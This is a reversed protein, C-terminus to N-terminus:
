GIGCARLSRANAVQAYWPRASRDRPIRLIANSADGALPTAGDFGSAFRRLTVSGGPARLSMGGPPIRLSVAPRSPTTRRIACAPARRVGAPAATLRLGYGRVFVNDALRRHGEDRSALESESYAPSSGIDAVAGLYDGATIQPAKEADPKFGPAMHAGGIDLATVEAQVTRDTFRLGDAGQRYMHMGSLAAFAALAGFLWMARPSFRTGRLVEAAILLVLLGGAYVYRSAAPENLDARALATLLWFALATVLVMVLARSLSRVRSVYLVIGGVAAVALV